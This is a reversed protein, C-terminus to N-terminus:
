KLRHFSDTGDDWELTDAAKAPASFLVAAGGLALASGVFAKAFLRSSSFPTLASKLKSFM